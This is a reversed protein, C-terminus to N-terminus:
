ATVERVWHGDRRVVAAGKLSCPIHQERWALHDDEASAFATEGCSCRGFWGSIGLPHPSPRRVEIREAVLPPHRRYVTRVQLTLWLNM